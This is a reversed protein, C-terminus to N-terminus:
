PGARWYRTSFGASLRLECGAKLMCSMWPMNLMSSPRLVMRNRHKPWSTFPWHPRVEPNLGLSRSSGAERVAGWGLAHDLALSGTSIVPVDAIMRGGLKMIAGKGFKREIQDMALQIAKQKDSQINQNQM